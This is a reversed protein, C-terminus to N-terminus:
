RQYVYLIAHYVVLCLFILFTYKCATSYIPLKKHWALLGIFFFVLSLLIPTLVIAVVEAKVLTATFVNILVSQLLGLSILLPILLTLLIALVKM